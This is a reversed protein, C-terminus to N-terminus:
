QLEKRIDLTAQSHDTDYDFVISANARSLKMFNLDFWIISKGVKMGNLVDLKLDGNSMMTARLRTDNYIKIKDLVIPKQDETLITIIGSENRVIKLKGLSVYAEQWKSRFTPNYKGLAAQVSQGSLVVTGNRLLLLAGYLGAIARDCNNKIQRDNEEKLLAPINLTAESSLSIHDVSAMRSDMISTYYINGREDFSLGFDTFTPDAPYQETKIAKGDNTFSLLNIRGPDENTEKKSQNKWIVKGDPNLKVLFLNEPANALMMIGGFMISKEFTGAIFINGDRDLRINTAIGNEECGGALAWEPNGYKNYKSVFADRRGPTSKITAGGISLEGQFYGTIYFNGEADVDYNQRNDGRYGGKEEMKKWISAIIGERNQENQLDIIEATLDKMGPMTLGVPADVYTPDAIVYKEGNHMVFDGPEDTSFHVATAVHGPYVLGVVKMHLMEKTLYAFLVARDDCDSFPYYFNEEPFFFKEKGNFQEPDTKYPFAKQVFALLFNVADTEPKGSIYKDLANIISEKTRPTTVADFYLKLECQPFDRYFEISNQNYEVTLNITEDGYRFSLNKRAYADGINLANYVNLDFVRSAGAFDTEYTYIQNLNFDPAYFKINDVLFYRIGYVTNVSPFMIAIKNEAYAVRIRYGSKTLLFWSLLRSYNTDPNIYESTKRILQFYGWDNLNMKSRLDFLMRVLGAYNTKNLRDWFDAITTNHIEEPLSGNMRTDYELPITIGYFYFGVPNVPPIKEKEVPITTTERQPLPTVEVQEEEPLVVPLDPMQPIYDPEESPTQVPIVQIQKGPQMKTIAPNFKPVTVPKPTSDPRMEQLVKFEKWTKRLRESFEKNIGDVYDTFEKRTQDIYSNMEGKLKKKEKEIEERSQSFAGSVALIALLLLFVIRKM